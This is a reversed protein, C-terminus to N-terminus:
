EGEGAEAALETLMWGPMPSSIGERWPAGVTVVPESPISRRTGCDRCTRRQWTVGPTFLGEGLEVIEHDWSGCSCQLRAREDLDQDTLTTAEMM